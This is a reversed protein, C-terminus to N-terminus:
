ARGLLFTNITLRGSELVTAPDPPTPVHGSHLRRGRYIIARDPRAAIEGIMEYREDDGYYYRPPLAGFEREDAKVAAAFSATRDPRISEFGTRRHRYFATGGTEADGTFHLLAILGADAADYHPRRQGESLDEPAISVISFSCSEVSAGRALGFNEALIRHLLAGRAAMYTSSVRCRIGPYGKVPEYAASRGIRELEEIQGTFDDIIAVPERERGFHEVTFEDSTTMPASGYSNLSRQEV